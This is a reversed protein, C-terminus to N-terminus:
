LQRVKALMGSSIIQPIAEWEAFEIDMKLYDIVADKGHYPALM